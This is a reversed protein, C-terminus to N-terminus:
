IKEKSNLNNTINIAIKNGTKGLKGSFMKINECYLLIDDQPSIDMIITSGIKLNIIEHMLVNKNNLVAKLDVNTNMLETQLHSEWESDKGFKEGVFVQLLQDRIPELTAYPFLIEIQGGRNEMEIKLQLLIAADAPRAITAFRPNNEIREFLFTAPTLPNFSSNLDTLVIESLQRVLAQEITTYPRGEYKISQNSKRGGFLIDVLSYIINNDATIIGFSEWETVKFITVLAPMSVSNIYSGFRLSSISKINVDVTDSTFSRLSTALVRVFRDFVIELMPLREYSLLAKDLMARIGIAKNEEKPKNNRGDSIAEEGTESEVKRNELSNTEAM